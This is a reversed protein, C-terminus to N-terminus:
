WTLFFSSRGRKEESYYLETATGPNQTILRKIADYSNTELVTSGNKV